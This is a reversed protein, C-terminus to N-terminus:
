STPASHVQVVVRQRPLTAPLPATEDTYPPRRASNYISICEHLVQAQILKMSFDTRRWGFPNQILVYIDLVGQLCVTTLILSVVKATFELWGNGTAVAFGGILGLELACCLMLAHALLSVVQLLAIPLQTNLTANVIGIADRAEECLRLVRTQVNLPNPLEGELCLKTYFSAIWVWVTAARAPAAFDNLLRQENPLILGDAHLGLEDISREVRHAAADWSDTLRADKFVLAISLLGYRLVTERATAHVETDTPLYVATFLVLTDVANIIGQLSEIRQNWWVDVMKRNWMTMVFIALTRLVDSLVSIQVVLDNAPALFRAVGGSRLVLATVTAVVAAFVSFFLLQSLLRLDSLVTGRAVRLWGWRVLARDNYRVVKEGAPGRCLTRVLTTLKFVPAVPLATRLGADRLAEVSPHYDRAPAKPTSWSSGLPGRARAM